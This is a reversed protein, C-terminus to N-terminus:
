HSGLHTMSKKSWVPMGAYATGDLPGPIDVSCATEQLSLSLSRRFLRQLQSEIQAKWNLLIGRWEM